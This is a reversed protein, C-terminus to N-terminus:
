RRIWEMRTRDPPVGEAMVAIFLLHWSKHGVGAGDLEVLVDIAVFNPAERDKSWLYVTYPTGSEMAM